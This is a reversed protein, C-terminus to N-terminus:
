ASKGSQSRYAKNISDLASLQYLISPRLMNERYCSYTLKIAHDDNLMTALAFLDSWPLLQAVRVELAQECTPLDQLAPAGISVYAVCLALWLQERFHESDLEPVADVIVRVANVVTLIHLVTFDKTQWYAALALQALDSLFDPSDPCAPVCRAFDEDQVVTRMKETIMRGAFVRGSMAASLVAFGDFLTKARPSPKQALSIPFNAVIMAALGAGIEGAHQADLGYALRILAHFATTAPSFPVTLLVEKIVAEASSEEIRRRFAQQLSSFAERDGLLKGYSAEEIVLSAPLAPNAYKQRWFEFFAQMRRGSAGMRQLATLAMPCHNTTGRGDLAFEQNADLLRRLVAESDAVNEGCFVRDM